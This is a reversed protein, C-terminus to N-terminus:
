VLREYEEPLKLGRTDDIAKAMEENIDRASMEGIVRVVDGPQGLGLRQIPDGTIHWTNGYAEIFSFPTLVANIQIDGEVEQIGFFSPSPELIDVLDAAIIGSGGMSPDESEKALERVFRSFGDAGLTSRLEELNQYGQMYLHVHADMKDEYGELDDTDFYPTSVDESRAAKSRMEQFEQVTSVSVSTGTNWKDSPGEDGSDEAAEPVDQTLFMTLLNTLEDLQDILRNFKDDDNPDDGISM